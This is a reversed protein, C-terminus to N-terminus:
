KVMESEIYTDCLTASVHEHLNKTTTKTTHRSSPQISSHIFPSTHSHSFYTCNVTFSSVYSYIMVDVYSRVFSRGVSRAFSCSGVFSSLYQTHAIFVNRFLSLCYISHSPYFRIPFCDNQTHQLACFCLYVFFSPCFYYEVQNAIYRTPPEHM